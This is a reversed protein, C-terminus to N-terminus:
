PARPRELLQPLAHGLCEHGVVIGHPCHRTGGRDILHGRRGPQPRAVPGPPSPPGIGPPRRALAGRLAGWHRERLQHRVPRAHQPTIAIQDLGRPLPQALTAQSREEARGLPERLMHIRAKGDQPLLEPRCSLPPTVPRRLPRSHPLPPGPCGPDRRQEAVMCGTLVLGPRHGATQRPVPYGQPHQQLHWSHLRGVVSGGSRVAAPHQPAFPALPGPALLAASPPVPGPAAAGRAYGSAVAM